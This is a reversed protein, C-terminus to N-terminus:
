FGKWGVDCDWHSKRAQSPKIVKYIQPCHGCGRSQWVCFLFLYYRFVPTRTTGLAQLWRSHMTEVM